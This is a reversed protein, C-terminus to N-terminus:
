RAAPLDRHLGRIRLLDAAMRLGDRLMKVKSAPDNIWTVAVQAIRYNLRRALYLLEADFVWGTVKQHELLHHAVERRFAKFGCQSDPIGPLLM